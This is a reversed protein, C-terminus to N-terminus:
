TREQNVVGGVMTNEFGMGGLGGHYEGGVAKTDRGVATGMLQLLRISDGVSVGAVSFRCFVDLVILLSRGSSSLLLLLSTSQKGQCSLCGTSGCGSMEGVSVRWGLKISDGM